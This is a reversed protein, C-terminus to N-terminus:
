RVLDLRKDLQAITLGALSDVVLDARRLARRDRSTTVALVKMGLHKAAEIGAPADEVVLTRTAELVRGTLRCLQELAIRYGQPDPKGRDVNEAAVVTMFREWLEVQKCALEIEQRLAGSCIALPVADTEAARVLEVAGPQPQLSHTMAQQVLHTKAAIMQLVVNERLTKGHDRAVALFCDHDDYGLYKQYYEQQTLEIGQAALVQAFAKCHIPESDVIVGDFDFIMADMKPSGANKKAAPKLASGDSCAAFLNM